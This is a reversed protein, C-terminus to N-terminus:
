AEEDKIYSLKGECNPCPQVPPTYRADFVQGCRACKLAKDDPIEVERTLKMCSEAEKRELRQDASAM